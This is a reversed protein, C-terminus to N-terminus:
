WWIVSLFDSESLHILCTCGWISIVLSVSRGFILTLRWTLVIERQEAKHHKHQGNIRELNDVSRYIYTSKNSYTFKLWFYNLSLSIIIIYYSIISIIIIILSALLRLPYQLSTFNLIWDRSKHYHTCLSFTLPGKILKGGQLTKPGWRLILRPM